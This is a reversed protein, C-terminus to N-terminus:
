STIPTHERLVAYVFPDLNGLSSIILSIAQSQVLSKNLEKLPQAAGITKQM